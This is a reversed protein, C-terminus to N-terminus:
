INLFARERGRRLVGIGTWILLAAALALPLDSFLYAPVFRGLLFGLIILPVTLVGILLLMVAPFGPLARTRLIAIALLTMGVFLTITTMGAMVRPLMGGGFLSSLQTINILHTILAMTELGIAGSALVKARRWLRVSLLLLGTGLCIQAAENAIMGLWMTASGDFYNPDILKGAMVGALYTMMWLMGALILGWGGWLAFGSASARMSTSTGKTANQM